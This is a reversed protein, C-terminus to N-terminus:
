NKCMCIDIYVLTHFMSNYNFNRSILKVFNKTFNIRTCLLVVILVNDLLHLSISSAVIKLLLHYYSSLFLLIYNYM